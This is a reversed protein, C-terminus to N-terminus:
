LITCDYSMNEYASPPVVKLTVESKHKINFEQLTRKLGVLEQEGYSIEQWDPRIGTEKYVMRKLNGVTCSFIL